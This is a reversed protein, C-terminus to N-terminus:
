APTEAGFPLRVTFTAGEGPATRLDVRGGHAEVVAAVIALGLGAGGTGRTRSPDARYFPEFVRAAVEPSMGPGDDAVELVAGADDDRVAIHVATGEPTHRLANGVLNAIVQRLQHEDGLVVPEGSTELSVPHGPHAARADNAADDALRALDVPEHEPQRGEGLRALMLLEDVMVGMRGGEEEIRRMATALDEPDDRAGRRFVEAYGRISTLPTRLEHSADALFRRLKEETAARQAFAREIQELMGNLALGLRGVETRPDAPRVRESLDGAAIRGATAGMDDLPRLERRVLWWALAGLGVLTVITVVAEIAVLRALTQTVDTLPIAVVLVRGVQDFSEVLVRFRVPSGGAARTTFTSTGGDPLPSPLSPVPLSEDGYSFTVANLVSGDSTRLQGYTGSPLMADGGGGRPGGGSTLAFTVPARAQFLQQDGRDLLFSRRSYYTAADAILLGAAVRGVLSLLLRLSLSV